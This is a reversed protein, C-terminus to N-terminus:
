KKELDIKLDIENDEKILEEVNILPVYYQNFKSGETKAHLVGRTTGITLMTMQQLFSKPVVLRNSKQNVMVNWSETAIAFHCGAEIVLFQQGKVSFSFTTFVAILHQTKDSAFRMDLQVKVEEKEEYNNEIVEFQETTIVVLKFGIDNIKDMNALQIQCSNLQLNWKM